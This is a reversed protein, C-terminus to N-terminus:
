RKNRLFFKYDNLEKRAERYKKYLKCFTEDQKLQEYDDPERQWDIINDRIEKPMSKFQEERMQAYVIQEQEMYLDKSKGM